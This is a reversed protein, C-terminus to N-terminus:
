ARGIDASARLRHKAVLVAPDDGAQDPQAAREVAGLLRHLVGQRRRQRMPVITPDRLVGSRPDHGSSVALQDIHRPALARPVFLV